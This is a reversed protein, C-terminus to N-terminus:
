ALGYIQGLKSQLYGLYPEPDIPGGAARELTEKPAFKRGHRHLNERLWERLGGFEGSAIQEELDPIARHAAGWIQVSMITGLSYTPFYGFAGSAWHIDQLVGHADDPVDVGLYDKMRANWAEPLDRLDIRRDVIEQELEFRLIVHLSYTAEDAEVRTLSPEVKNVAGYFREADVGALQGPFAKVLEPYLHRWFSFSRGVLNEWLRSQSEHLGLSAGACLPTRELEPSVGREYLGHGCEHM